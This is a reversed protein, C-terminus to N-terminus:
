EDCETEDVIEYDDPTVTALEFEPGCARIEVQMNAVAEDLGDGCFEVPSGFKDNTNRITTM